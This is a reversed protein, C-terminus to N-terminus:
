FIKTMRIRPKSVEHGSADRRTRVYEEVVYYGMSEYLSRAIVNRSDVRLEMGDLKRHRYWAEAAEMLQRGIGKRRYQEAVLLTDVGGVITNDTWPLRRGLLVGALNEGDEEAVWLDFQGEAIVARAHTSDEGNSEFLRLLKQTYSKPDAKRIAEVIEGRLDFAVWVLRRLPLLSELEVM